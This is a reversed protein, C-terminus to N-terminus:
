SQEQRNQDTKFGARFDLLDVWRRLGSDGDRVEVRQEDLRMVKSTAGSIERVKDGTKVLEIARM